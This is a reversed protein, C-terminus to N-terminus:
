MSKLIDNKKLEYEKSNILGKKYLEQLSLLRQEVSNNKPNIPTQEVKTASPQGNVGRRMIHTPEIGSCMVDFQSANVQASNWEYGIYSVMPVAMLQNLKAGFVVNAKENARLSVQQGIGSDRKMTSHKFTIEYNGPPLSLDVRSGNSIEAILENNLYLDPSLAMFM